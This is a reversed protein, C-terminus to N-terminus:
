CPAHAPSQAHIRRTPRFRGVSTAFRVRVRRARLGLDRHTNRAPKEGNTRAEVAAIAADSTGLTGRHVDDLMLMIGAGTVDLAEVCAHVLRDGFGDGSRRDQALGDALDTLFAADV